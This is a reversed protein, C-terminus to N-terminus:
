NSTQVLPATSERELCKAPINPWTAKACEEASVASDSTRIIRITTQDSTAASDSTALAQASAPLTSFLAAAFLAATLIKM